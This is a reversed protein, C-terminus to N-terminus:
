PVCLACMCHWSVPLNSESPMCHSGLTGAAMQDPASATSIRCRHDLRAYFDRLGGARRCTTAWRTLSNAAIGDRPRRHTLPDGSALALSLVLSPWSWCRAHSARTSAVSTRPRRPQRGVDAVQRLEVGEGPGGPGKACVGLTSYSASQNMNVLLYGKTNSRSPCDPETGRAALGRGRLCVYARVQAASRRRISVPGLPQYFSPRVLGQGNSHPLPQARPQCPVIKRLGCHCGQGLTGWKNRVM